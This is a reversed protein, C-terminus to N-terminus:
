HLVTALGVGGLSLSLVSAAMLLKGIVADRRNEWVTRLMGWAFLVMGGVILTQVVLAM